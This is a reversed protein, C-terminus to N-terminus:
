GIDNSCPLPPAPLTVSAEKTLAPTDLLQHEAGIHLTLGGVLQVSVHASGAGAEKDTWRHAWSLHKMGAPLNEM